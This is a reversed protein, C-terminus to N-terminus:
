RSNRPRSGLFKGITADYFAWIEDLSADDAILRAGEKAQESTPTFYGMSDRAARVDLWEPQHQEIDLEVRVLTQADKWGESGSKWAGRMRKAPMELMLQVCEDVDNAVLDRCTAHQASGTQPAQPRGGGGGTALLAPVAVVSLVVLAVLMVVTRSKMAKM